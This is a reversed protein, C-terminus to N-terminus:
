EHLVGTNTRGGTKSGLMVQRVAVRRSVQLMLVIVTVYVVQCALRSQSGVYCHCHKWNYPMANRCMSLLWLPSFLASM